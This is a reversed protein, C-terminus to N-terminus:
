INVLLQMNSTKTLHALQNRGTNFIDLISLIFENDFEIVQHPLASPSLQHTTTEDNQERSFIYFFLTFLLFAM